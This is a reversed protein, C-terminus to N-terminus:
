GEPQEESRQQGVPLHGQGGGEGCELVAAKHVAAFVASFAGEGPTNPDFAGYRREMHRLAPVARAGAAILERAVDLFRLLGEEDLCSDSIRFGVLKLPTTPQSDEPDDEPLPAGRSDFLLRWAGRVAVGAQRPASPDAGAALAARVLGVDGDSVAAELAEQPTPPAPPPYLEHRARVGAAVCAACRAPSGEAARARQSASASSADLPAGCSFCGSLPAPCLLPHDDHRPAASLPFLVGCFRCRLHPLAAIPGPSM